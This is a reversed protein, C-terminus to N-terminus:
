LLPDYDFGFDYPKPRSDSLYPTCFTLGLFKYIDMGDDGLFLSSLLTAVSFMSFFSSVVVVTVLVKCEPLIDVVLAFAPFM